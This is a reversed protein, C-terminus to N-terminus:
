RSRRGANGGTTVLFECEQVQGWGTRYTGMVQVLRVDGHETEVHDEDLEAPEVSWGEGVKPPRLTRTVVIHAAGARYNGVGLDWVGVPWCYVVEPTRTVPSEDGGSPLCPREVAEPLRGRYVYWAFGLVTRQM